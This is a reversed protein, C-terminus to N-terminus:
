NDGTSLKSILQLGVELSQLRANSSSVLKIRGLCFSNISFRLM